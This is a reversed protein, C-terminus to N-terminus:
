NYAYPPRESIKRIKGQAKAAAQPDYLISGAVKVSGDAFTMLRPDGGAGRQHLERGLFRGSVDIRAHVYFEPTALYLVNLTQKSDVAAQPKRFLLAEGLNLTQLSTGTKSDILQAYLQTKKSNTFNIVRFERTKGPSGPVGVKQSWDPRVNACSFLLRNSAFGSAQAGSSRVLASVSYSGPERLNYLQGIDITKSMTQGSAIKVAGFGANKGLASASEGNARKVVVDLWPTRGSNALVIDNGTHNTITIGVLVAEGALLQSQNMRINVGLQAQALPVLLVTSLSAILRGLYRKM